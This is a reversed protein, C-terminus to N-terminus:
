NTCPPWGYKAKGELLSEVALEDITALNTFLNTRLLILVFTLSLPGSLRKKNQHKPSDSYSLQM